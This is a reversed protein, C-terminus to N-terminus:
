PLGMSLFYSSQIGTESSTIDSSRLAAQRARRPPPSEGRTVGRWHRGHSRIQALAETAAAHQKEHGVQAIVYGYALGTEFALESSPQALLSARYLPAAERALNICRPRVQQPM